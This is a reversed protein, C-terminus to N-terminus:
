LLSEYLSVTEAAVRSPALWAACKEHSRLGMTAAEDPNAAMRLIAEATRDVDGIPVVLGTVGDEVMEGNGFSDSVILPAGVAMAEAVSYAFNEFRSGVITIGAKRRLSGIESRSLKGAFTIRPQVDAPIADAVFDAFRIPPGDERALGNDPGVMTLRIDPDRAAAQAFARLVIDAGKRLDFRGVCLIQKPDSETRSWRDAEPVNEIPNPITRAIAPKVQHYALTAVLLRESPSTVADARAIAEQEWIERRDSLAKVAPTEIANRGVFHPGHLRIVIPCGLRGVLLGGWGFSEEIEFIDIPGHRRALAFQRRILRAGAARADDGPLRKRLREVLSRRPDNRIIEGSPLRVGSRALVTVQHGAAELAHVMVNVYTVIGNAVEDGPLAPSWFAIHM